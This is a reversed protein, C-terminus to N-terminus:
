VGMQRLRYSMFIPLTMDSEESGFAYTAPSAAYKRVKFAYFRNTGYGYTSYRAVGLHMRDVTESNAENVREVTDDTIHINGATKWMKVDYTVPLTPSISGSSYDENGGVGAAKVFNKVTDWSDVMKFFSIGYDTSSWSAHHVSFISGFIDNDVTSTHYMGFGSSSYADEIIWESPFTLTKSHFGRGNLWNSAGMDSVELFHNASDISYTPSGDVSTWRGTDLTANDFPDGFIFTNDFDWDSAAGSNGYYMYIDADVTNAPTNTEVWVVASTSDVKSELWADLLTTGDLKTFRLDDFDAQMDSDYVVNFMMQYDTQAGSSGGTLTVKKRKSYGGSLWAM